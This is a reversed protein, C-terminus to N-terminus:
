SIEEESDTQMSINLGNYGELVSKIALFWTIFLFQETIDDSVEALVMRAERM